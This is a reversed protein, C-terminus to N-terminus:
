SFFFSATQLRYIMESFRTLTAVASLHGSRRARELTSAARKREDGSRQQSTRRSERDARGSGEGSPRLRPGHLFPHEAHRVLQLAAGRHDAHPGEASVTKPHALQRLEPIVGRGPARYAPAARSRHTP